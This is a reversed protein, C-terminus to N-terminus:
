APFPYAAGPPFEGLCVLVLWHNARGAALPPAGPLCAPFALLNGGAAAAPVPGHDVGRRALWRYGKVTFAWALASGAALVNGVFPDPATAFHRRGGVFLLALGAALVGM